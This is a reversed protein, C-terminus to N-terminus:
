PEILLAADAAAEAAVDEAAAADDDEEGGDAAEVTEALTTKWDSAVALFGELVAQLREASLGELGERFQVVVEGSEEQLALTAGRAGAWYFNAALLRGFVAGAREAPVRGLPATLVVDPAEPRCQVFLLMGDGFAAAAAGDEDFVLQPAGEREAIEDFMRQLTEIETTM